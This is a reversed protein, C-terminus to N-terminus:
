HVLGESGPEVRQGCRGKEEKELYAGMLLGRQCPMKGAMVVLNWASSLMSASPVARWMSKWIRLPMWPSTVQPESPSALVSVSSSFSCTALIARSAASPRMGTNALTDSVLM